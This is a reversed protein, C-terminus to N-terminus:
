MGQSVMWAANRRAPQQSSGGLVIAVSSPGAPGAPWCALVVLSLFREQLALWFEEVGDVAGQGVGAYKGAEAQSVEM